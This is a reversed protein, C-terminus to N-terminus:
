WSIIDHKDERGYFGFNWARYDEQKQMM